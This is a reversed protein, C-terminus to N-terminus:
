TIGTPAINLPLYFYAHDPTLPANDLEISFVM